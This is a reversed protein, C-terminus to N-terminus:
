PNGFLIKHTFISDTLLPSGGATSVLFCKSLIELLVAKDSRPPKKQKGTGRTYGSSAGAMSSVIFTRYVRWQKDLNSDTGHLCVM